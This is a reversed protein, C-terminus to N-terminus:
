IPGVQRAQLAAVFAEPPPEALLKVTGDEPSYVLAGNEAVVMHFQGVDPFVQLLDHLERGTVLILLRGTARVQRLAELVAEPVLDNEALTGDFDCALARYRM